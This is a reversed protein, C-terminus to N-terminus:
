ADPLERYRTEPSWYHLACNAILDAAEENDGYDCAGCRVCTHVPVSCSCHHHCGANCGGIHKMEHGGECGVFLWDRDAM